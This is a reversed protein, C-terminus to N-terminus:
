SCRSRGAFTAIEFVEVQNNLIVAPLTPDPHAYPFGKFWGHSSPSQKALTFMEEPSTDHIIDLQHNLQSIVRKDPPGPDVYAVYKPGPEGFRALTTKQWDERKQWIYWEGNPDFSKLTYPGITVPPNFDYSTPDKQKEFVHKPM